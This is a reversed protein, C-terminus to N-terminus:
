KGPSKKGNKARGGTLGPPMLRVITAAKLYTRRDGPYGNAKLETAITTAIEEKTLLTNDRYLERSRKEVHTAIAERSNPRGIELRVHDDPRPSARDHYRAHSKLGGTSRAIQAVAELWEDVWRHYVLGRQQAIELWQAMTRNAGPDAQRVGDFILRLERYAESVSKRLVIKGTVTDRSPLGDLSKEATEEARYQEAYKYHQPNIGCLVLAAQSPTVPQEPDFWREASMTEDWWGAVYAPDSPGKVRAVDVWDRIPNQAVIPASPTENPNVGAVQDRGSDHNDAADTSKSESM